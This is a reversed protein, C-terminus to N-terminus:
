YWYNLGPFFLQSNAKLCEEAAKLYERWRPLSLPAISEPISKALERAQALWEADGLSRCAEALVTLRIM